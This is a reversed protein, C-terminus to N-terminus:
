EMMGATWLEMMQNMPWGQLLMLNSSTGLRLWAPCGVLWGVLCGFLWGVVWNYLMDM